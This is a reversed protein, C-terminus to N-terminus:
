ANLTAFAHWIESIFNNLYHEYNLSELKKWKVEPGLKLKNFVFPFDEVVDRVALILPLVDSTQVLGCFM